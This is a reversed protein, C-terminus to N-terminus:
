GPISSGYTWRIVFLNWDYSDSFDVPGRLASPLARELRLLVTWPSVPLDGM